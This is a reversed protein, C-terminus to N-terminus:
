LILNELGNTEWHKHSGHLCLTGWASASPEPVPLVCGFAPCHPHHPKLSHRWSWSKEWVLCFRYAKAHQVQVGSYLAFPLISLTWLIWSCTKKTKQERKVGANSVVNWLCPQFECSINIHILWELRSLFIHILMNKKPPPPHWNM